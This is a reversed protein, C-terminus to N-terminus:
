LFSDLKNDREEIIFREITKDMGSYVLITEWKMYEDIFIALKEAEALNDEISSMKSELQYCVINGWKDPVDTIYVEFNFKICGYRNSVGRAIPFLLKQDYAHLWIYIKENIISPKSSIKIGPISSISRHLNNLEKYNKKDIM